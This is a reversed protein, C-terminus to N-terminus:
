CGKGDQVCCCLRTREPERRAHGHDPGCCAAGARRDQRGRRRGGTVRGGADAAAGSVIGMLGNRGGGYVLPRGAAAIARGLAIMALGPDAGYVGRPQPPAYVARRARIREAHGNLVRLIRRDRKARDRGHHNYSSQWRQLGVDTCSRRPQPRQPESWRNPKDNASGTKDDSMKSGATPPFRLTSLRRSGYGCRCLSLAPLLMVVNVMVVLALM